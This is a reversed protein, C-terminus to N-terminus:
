QDGWSPHAATQISEPPRGRGSAKRRGGGSVARFHSCVSCETDSHPEWRFVEITSGEQTANTNCANCMCQPHVDPKDEDMNIGLKKLM